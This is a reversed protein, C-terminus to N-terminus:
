GKGALSGVAVPATQLRALNELARRLRLQTVVQRGLIELARKQREDFQRPVRDIVCLSGLAPGEPTILPAGAYFRIHPSGTVLPNAAFREDKTADPVVFVMDQLIAHACFSVDRSTEQADLGVSSKFWQREEDVLSILAIPTECISTALETLEDFAEESITDLIDYQYLIRLRQAEDDPIPAAM